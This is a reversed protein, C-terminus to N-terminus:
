KVFEVVTLEAPCNIRIPLGVTGLGRTVYLKGWPEEFYGSLYKTCGINLAFAQGFPLIQGGHTHGALTVTYIGARRLDYCFYDPNHTLILDASTPVTPEGVLFDDSGYIRIGHFEASQNVLYHCDFESFALATDLYFHKLDHNGRVGYTPAIERLVRLFSRFNTFISHLLRQNTLESDRIYYYDGLLLNVNQGFDFNFRKWDPQFYSSVHIDSIVLAKLGALSKSSIQVKEVKLDYIPNGFLSIAISFIFNRRNVKINTRNKISFDLM